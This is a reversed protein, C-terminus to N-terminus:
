VSDANSKSPSVYVNLLSLAYVFAPAAMRMAAHNITMLWFIVFSMIYINYANRFYILFPMAFLILLAFIGFVGHEGLTRTIENHSVVLVGTRKQREEAIKGVGLGFFSFCFIFMVASLTSFRLSASAGVGAGVVMMMLLPVPAPPAFV